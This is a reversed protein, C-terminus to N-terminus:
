LIYSRYKIKYYLFEKILTRSNQLDFFKTLSLKYEFVIKRKAIFCKRLSNDELAIQVNTCIKQRKKLVM